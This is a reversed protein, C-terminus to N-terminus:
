DTARHTRGGWSYRRFVAIALFPLTIGIVTTTLMLIGLEGYDAPIKVAGTAADKVERTVVFVQNLYKTGLQAGSLALNTFSAMVAFYTAKLREPASNAIWALMPIMAVQGLPSELATDVLAITRAGFGLHADTWHHLGYYMGIMPLYLITGAITLFGVVHAISREAMYRRFIFMGFLALASSILSLQAIFAQDFGLVDIQWWGGGAGVGPLARFVFVIAATGLMVRRAEPALERALHFMLLLVISMSGLFIIEQGYPVGGLGVGLTIVAFMLSGGLINWNVPPPVVSRRAKNHGLIWALLVGLVSIVPILLALTYVGLYAALKEARPLDGVGEMLFVNVLSVLIGGGVIAVRGLTQMTTDMLRIEEAPLALGDSGVRPVAEVTMADAVVDQLVYGTPALLTSLVFWAEVPAWARMLDPHGLLGVMILLSVAILGSGLFVFVSKWRWYLDVLHGVPMKLAWPLGAWFGLSALFTASLGLEEKVYFTGVIGTLGSIGAAMYVMLPPLYTLRFAKALSVIEGLFKGLM